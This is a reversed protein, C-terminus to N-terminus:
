GISFLSRFNFVNIKIKMKENKDMKRHHLNTSHKSNVSFDISTSVSKFECSNLHIELDYLKHFNVKFM